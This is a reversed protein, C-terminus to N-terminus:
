WRIVAAGWTLGGGLAEFVVIDGKKIKNNELAFDLALPISAASTNAHDAVTMVVKDLSLDLKKAVSLLIRANAQHPILWDIDKKELNAEKLVDIVSKSMKDVAHKFVDKGQMQIIGANKTSAVGGSTQLISNLKGDSYLKTALIGSSQDETAQLLVAGAGDGFLVCTNRDKWDVIRSLIDAGIVVVNRAKGLKIFNDAVSLAYVFGSCVAQIDFAFANTAGLKDQITTATAPFTLDPTTTALIIIDIDEAKLKAKEIALKAAKSGIDSTLEDTSAIHRKNIGTREVIWENTTEITKELDFNTLFKEPLYSGSSIIKSNFIKM